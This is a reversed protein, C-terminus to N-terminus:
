NLSICSGNMEVYLVASWDYVLMRAALFIVSNRVVVSHVIPIAMVCRRRPFVSNGLGVNSMVSICYSLPCKFINICNVHKCNRLHASDRYYSNHGFNDHDYVCLKNLAFRKSHDPFCLIEQVDNCGFCLREHITKWLYDTFNMGSMVVILYWTM